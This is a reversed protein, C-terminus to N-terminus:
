LPVGLKVLRGQKYSVVDNYSHLTVSCLHAHSQSYMAVHMYLGDFEFRWIAVIQIINHGSLNGM